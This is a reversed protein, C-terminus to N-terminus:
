MIFDHQLMPNIKKSPIGVTIKFNKLQQLEDGVHM